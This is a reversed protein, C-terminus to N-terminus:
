RRCFGRGLGSRPQLGNIRCFGLEDCFRNGEADYVMFGRANFTSGEDDVFWCNSGFTWEGNSNRVFGGGRNVEFGEATFFRAQSEAATLRAQHGWGNGRAYATSAFGLVMVFALCAAMLKRTRKM